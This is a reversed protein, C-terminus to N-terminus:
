AALKASRVHQDIETQLKHFARQLSSSLPPGTSVAQAIGPRYLRAHVRTFYLAACLGFDTVRYRHTKPIREIMGHLRLRRLDYTMRGQTIMHPSQGTLVALQERLDRNAFGCPLIRFWVLLHWLALVRLDTIRLASTRQGNVEVPRNLRHLTEEGMACDHSLRQVELLRRNAQFGVQRLAPLNCLRKGISFDRTNNVTTETRAGVERVDPVQKFYQKIRSNKYDVHLSPIVGDTLVRTRFRGPTRKTVRRNFILQVMDPRGIDLNERIIEEFLIRGHLPRDLVQTLSFEAQLISIDYRYGAERDPATFPHPLHSLWRRLLADIQAPGMQECITQLREPNECSVFGNDLAKFGIGERRLQCKAYEHGNLCLKANYPFYSAFKLFFPGFDRDLCYWYYQNIMATSRVIWPYTKGTEPNRRKQTRFVPTKEQAKGLMVVGEPKDFRALHEAMVDDKRQGKRFQVVPIQEQQAFREMGAVLSKTMPDMLASSAFPHGRHSRFFKVVGSECQLSPVYVNLYMRDICELEFTVHQNLIEAVSQPVSMEPEPVVGTRRSRNAVETAIDNAPVAQLGEGDVPAM